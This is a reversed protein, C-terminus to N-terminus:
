ILKSTRITRVCFSLRAILATANNCTWMQEYMGGIPLNTSILGSTTINTSKNTVVYSITGDLNFILKFYILDTDLTNSPFSVGLDIATCVGVNDNHIVNWNNSTSLRAIGVSNVFSTPEVNSPNSFNNTYGVFSRAGAVTAPDSTGFMVEYTDQTTVATSVQTTRYFGFTGAVATSQFWVKNQRGLIGSTRSASAVGSTVIGAGAQGLNFFTSLGIGQAGYIQNNEQAYTQLENNIKVLNNTPYKTTSNDLLTNEKNAVDEPTYGLLPQYTLAASAITLYPALATSTLYGAPNTSLPYYVLDYTTQGNAWIVSPNPYTGSLDGGAPGTPSGGGSTIKKVNGNADLIIVRGDDTSTNGYKDLIQVM